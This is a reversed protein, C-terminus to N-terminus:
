LHQLDRRVGQDRGAGQDQRDIAKTPLDLRSTLDQHLKVLSDFTAFPARDQRYKLM